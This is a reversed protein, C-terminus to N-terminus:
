ATDSEPVPVLPVEPVAATLGVLKFQTLTATPCVPPAFAMVRVLLPVDEIAILLMTTPPVFEVSKRIEVFVQPALRAAPALQEAEIANLGVAAPEREAVSANVSPALLLGCDTDRVPKPVPPVLETM